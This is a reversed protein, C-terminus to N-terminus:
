PDISISEPRVEQLAETYLYKRFDPLKDKSSRSKLAWRAEKELADLLAKDFQVRVKYEPWLARLAKEDMGTRNKVILIAEDRHDRVFAEARIFGRLLKKVVEPHKEAFEANMAVCHRGQYLEGASIVEAEAGAQHAAYYIHPEWAFYGDISGSLFATVMEPPSMDAIKVEERPIGYRELYASMFYDSNTGPLTAIRKNRLDSPLPVASKRVILKTERHEVVTAVIRIPHGQIIALMLPTESVSMVQASGGLLADLALRGSSFMKAEVALGEESWYGKELAVYAPIAAVTIPMAYVIKVAEEPRSANTSTESHRPRSIVFLAAFLAAVVAVLVIWAVFFRPTRSRPLFDSLKM